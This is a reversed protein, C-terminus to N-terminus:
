PQAKAIAAWLADSLEDAQMIAETAGIMRRSGGEAVFDRLSQIVDRAEHLLDSM